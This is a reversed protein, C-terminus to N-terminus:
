LKIEGEFVFTAPDVLFVKQYGQSTKEFSVQLQGGEVDIAINTSNTKGLVHM